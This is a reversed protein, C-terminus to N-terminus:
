KKVGKLSKKIKKYMRKFFPLYKIDTSIYGDSPLHITVSEISESVDKGNIETHLCDCPIIDGDPERVLYIKLNGLNILLQNM